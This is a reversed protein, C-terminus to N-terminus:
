GYWKKDYPDNIMGQNFIKKIELIGDEVTRTIRYGLVESIKNFSVYYNRLDRDAGLVNIKVDSIHKTILKAIEIKKINNENGGVNFIQYSVKDLPAEICDIIAKCVDQVHVFPRWFEPGYINLEKKVIADRVFEHLLLDLRLNLSPGFVTAFRLIIPHITLSKHGLLYKEAEIKTSAYISTPNVPSDETAVGEFLGYNSCTSSFIFRTVKRERSKDFLNITAVQNIEFADKPERNCAPEGVIAALHVVVNIGNLVERITKEDRIDGKIFNFDSYEYLDILSEGGRRLSDIVTVKYGNRLLRRVLVSGIYGAGGTLLINIKRTQL